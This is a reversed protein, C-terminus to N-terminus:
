ITSEVAAVIDDFGLLDVSSPNDDRLPMIGFDHLSQSNGTSVSDGQATFRGKALCGTEPRRLATGERGSPSRAPRRGDEHSCSPLSIARGATPDLEQSFSRANPVQVTAPPSSTDITAGWSDDTSS